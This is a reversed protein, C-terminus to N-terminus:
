FWNIKDLILKPDIELCNSAKCNQNRKHWLCPRCDINNTVLKINTSNPILKNENTPAFIAFVDAKIGAAVHLPASDVCIVHKSNKMILAM